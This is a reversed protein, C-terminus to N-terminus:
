LLTAYAMIGWDYNKIEGINRLSWLYRLNVTSGLDPYLFTGIFLLMFMCTGMAVIECKAINECLWILPVNKSKMKSPVIGLLKKIEKPTLPDNVHIREGGLRLGTIVFFDYPTLIVEGIGPFHFTCTTDWFRELLALSLQLDKYKHTEQNLLAKFFTGFGADNIINRINLSLAEWIDKLM